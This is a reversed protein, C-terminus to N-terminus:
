TLPSPTPPGRGSLVSALLREKGTAARPTPRSPCRRGAVPESLLAFGLLRRLDLLTHGLVRLLTALVSEGRELWWASVVAVLGHALLMGLVPVLGGSHHGGFGPTPAAGAGFLHHMGYQAAFCAPLLAGIGRQRGTLAFGVGGTFVAAAVVVEPRVFAGGALVHM